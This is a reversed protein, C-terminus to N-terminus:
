PNYNYCTCYGPPEPCVSMLIDAHCGMFPTCSEMDQGAGNYCSCYEECVEKTIPAGCSFDDNSWGRDCFYRVVGTAQSNPGSLAPNPSQDLAAITPLMELNAQTAAM